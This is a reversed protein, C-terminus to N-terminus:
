FLKLIRSLVDRVQNRVVGVDATNEIVYDAIARKNDLPMQLNQRRLLESEEWGRTQRVRALRHELSAEIFVIADCRDALGAEMLLPTDWVFAKVQPDKGHALM